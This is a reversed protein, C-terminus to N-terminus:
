RGAHRKGGVAWPTLVTYSPTATVTRKEAGLLRRRILWGVASQVSSKSVGISEALERYSIEVPGNRKQQEATLWVYVFFCVPRRDHGILDRLLVDVVYNDLSVMAITVTLITIGPQNYVKGRAAINKSIECLLGSM